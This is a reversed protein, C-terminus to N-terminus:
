TSIQDASRQERRRASRAREAMEQATARTTSRLLDPHIGHQLTHDVLRALSYGPDSENVLELAVAALAGNGRSYACWSLVTAAPVHEPAGVRRVTEVLLRQLAEADDRLTWTIVTDRVELLHLGLAVRATEEVDLSPTRGGFRLVLDEILALLEDEVQEQDGQALRPVLTEAFRDMAQGTAAHTWPAAPELTARLAQRDPLATLGASVATVDVLSNREQGAVSDLPKGEPPCCALDQCRSSWWRGGALCLVDRVTISAERCGRSIADVLPDTPLATTDEPRHDVPDYLVLIAATDGDSTLGRLVVEAMEDPPGDLDLRMSVGLRGRPGHLGLVVLSHQPHFGLLYPVATFVEEPTRLRM